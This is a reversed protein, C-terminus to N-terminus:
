GLSTRYISVMDREFEALSEENRIEKSHDGAMKKLQEIRIEHEALRAQHKALMKRHHEDTEHFLRGMEEDFERQRAEREAEQAQLAREKEKLVAKEHWYDNQLDKQYSRIANKAVLFGVLKDFFDM